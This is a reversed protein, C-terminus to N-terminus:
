VFGVGNELEKIMIDKEEQPAERWTDWKRNKDFAPSQEKIKTYKEKYEEISCIRRAPVGAYVANGPLNGSVVSGAGIIVNDGIRTNCLVVSRTGIFVNNGIIVRGLKTSCGVINTSADHALVVTNPTITVNDGIEILWPWASDILCGPLLSSNKGLKLGHSLLYEMERDWSSKKNIIKRLVKKLM